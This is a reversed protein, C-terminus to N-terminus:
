KVVRMGLADAMRKFLKAAVRLDEADMWQGAITVEVSNSKDDRVSVTGGYSPLEIDGSNISTSEKTVINKIKTNM